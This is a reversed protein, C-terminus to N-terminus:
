EKWFYKGGHHNIRKEVPPLQLYDGYKERLADDFGSRAYFFSDEFPVLVVKEFVSISHCEKLGYRMFAAQTYYPTDGYVISRLLSIHEDIVDFSSYLSIFKSKLEFFFGKVNKNSFLPRKALRLNHGTDWLKKMKKLHEKRESIDEEIGDLPFVDIWVGTSTSTWPLNSYDVFTREMDCVRAYALYVDLSPDSIERSFVRYGNNSKYTRIFREYDPRPMAIDVDDDWPIFGKHRIAGLLTGGQLTYKINNLICFSHVDKLIDLGVHQIDQLSM